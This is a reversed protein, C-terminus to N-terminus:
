HGGCGCSHGCGCGSEIEPADEINTVKGEFVLDHGALPHNGDLVVELDNIETIVLDVPVGEMTTSVRMGVQIEGLGALAKPDLRFEKDGDWAGYGEAAPIEYRFAEGLKAGLIRSELGEVADGRGPVFVFPGSQESSGLFHGDSTSFTYEITVQTEQTVQSEQSITSIKNVNM